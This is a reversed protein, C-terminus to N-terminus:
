GGTARQHGALSPEFAGIKVVGIVSNPPVNLASVTGDRSVPSDPRNRAKGSRHSPFDPRRTNRRSLRRQAGAEGRPKRQSQPRHAFAEIVERQRRDNDKDESTPRLRPKLYAIAPIKERTALRRPRFARFKSM